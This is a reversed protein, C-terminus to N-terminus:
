REDCAEVAQRLKQYAEPDCVITDMYDTFVRACVLRAAELLRRHKEWEELHNVTPEENAPMGSVIRLTRSLPESLEAM